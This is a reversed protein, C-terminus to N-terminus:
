LDGGVLEFEQQVYWLWLDIQRSHDPTWPSDLLRDLHPPLLPSAEPQTGDTQTSLHLSTDQLSTSSRPIIPSLFYKRTKVEMAVPPKSM